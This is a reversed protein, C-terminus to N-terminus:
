NGLKEIRHIMELGEKISTDKFFTLKPTHRMKLKKALLNQIFGAAHNLADVAKLLAADSKFSSVFVKAYAADKSVEVSNVGILSDIRPDKVKGSVIISGIERQLLSEIKKLRFDAM